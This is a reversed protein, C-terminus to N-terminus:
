AVEPQGGLVGDTEEAPMMGKVKGALYRSVGSRNAKGRASSNDGLEQMVYDAVRLLIEEGQKGRLMEVVHENGDLTSIFSRLSALDRAMMRLVRGRIVEVMALRQTEHHKPKTKAM